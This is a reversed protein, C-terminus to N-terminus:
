DASVDGGITGRNALVLIVVGIVMIPGGEGATWFTPMGAVIDTVLLTLGIVIHLWGFIPVYRHHQQITLGTYFMLVGHVGYLLSTSRALYATIPFNPFEGLGLWQHTSAMVSVPLLIAGFATMLVLGSLILLWRVITYEISM